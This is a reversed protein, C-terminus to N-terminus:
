SFFISISESHGQGKVWPWWNWYPGLWQLFCGNLSFQTWIPASTRSSNQECSYSSMCVCVCVCLCVSTFIYGRWSKTSTYYLKYTWYFKLYSCKYPSFTFSMVIVDDGMQNKHFEFVNWCLAYRLPMGFKLKILCLVASIYLLYILLSSHLSFPYQNVTVKVKSGLDGIEIHDSGINYAAM